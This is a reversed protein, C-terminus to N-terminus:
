GAAANITLKLRVEERPSSHRCYSDKCAGAAERRTVHSLSSMMGCLLLLL